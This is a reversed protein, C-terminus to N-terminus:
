VRPMRCHILSCQYPILSGQSRHYHPTKKVVDSWNEPSPLVVDECGCYPTHRDGHKGDPGLPRLIDIANILSQLKDMHRKRVDAPLHESWGVNIYAVCLTEQLSKPSIDVDLIMLSGGTTVVRMSSVLIVGETWPSLGYM